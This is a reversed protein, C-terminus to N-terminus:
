CMCTSRLIKNLPSRTLLVYSDVRWNPIFDWIIGLLFFLWFQKLILRRLILNNTLYHSVLGVIRLQDSLVVLWVLVSVRGLSKRSAATLFRLCHAFAQDLSIAHTIFAIKTTFSKSSTIIIVFSWSCTGALHNAWVYLLKHKFVQSMVSFGSWCLRCFSSFEMDEKENQFSFFSRFVYDKSWYMTEKILAVGHSTKSVFFFFTIHFCILFSFSFSPKAVKRTSIIFQIWTM